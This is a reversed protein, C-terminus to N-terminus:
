LGAVIGQMLTAFDAERMKAVDMIEDSNPDAGAIGCAMNTVLSMGLVRMGAHRAAIVEEVVSMAVTDGGLSAFLRVEAPTEFSPGLVSLYVGEQVSVGCADAVQRALVRLDADFCALMPVFRQAMIDPTRGVLPNGGTLNIQDRMICIDGVAYSPNLAGAANTTVLTGIGCQAMLWVPFAVEMASCGEYRHLRGQMCLVTRGTGPVRGLVFRGKHGEATSVLMFPVEGFPLVRADELTDAFPNLGSGLIIGAAPEEDGIFGRLVASGQEIAYLLNEDNLMGM